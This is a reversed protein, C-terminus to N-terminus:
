AHNFYSCYYVFLGVRQLIHNRGRGSCTLVGPENFLVPHGRCRIQRTRLPASCFEAEICFLGYLVLEWQTEMQWNFGYIIDAARVSLNLVSM